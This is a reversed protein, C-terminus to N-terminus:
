SSNRQRNKCAGQVTRDIVKFVYTISGTPENYWRVIVPNCRVCGAAPSQVIQANSFRQKLIQIEAHDFVQTTNGCQPHNSEILFKDEGKDGVNLAHSRKERKSVTYRRKLKFPKKNSQAHPTKISLLLATENQNLDPLEIDIRSKGWSKIPASYGLSRSYQVLVECTGCHSGFNKGFIVINGGSGYSIRDINPVTTSASLPAACIIVAIYFTKIFKTSM